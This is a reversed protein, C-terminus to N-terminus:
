QDGWAQEKVWVDFEGATVPHRRYGEVQSQELEEIALQHLAAMLADRIFQSRSINRLHTAQDVDQLLDDDITIQITKMKDRYYHTNKDV